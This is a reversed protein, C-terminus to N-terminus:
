QSALVSNVHIIWINKLMWVGGHPEPNSIELRKGGLDLNSGLGTRALDTTSYIPV